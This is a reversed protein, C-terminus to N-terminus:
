KENKFKQNKLTPYVKPFYVKDYVSMTRNSWNVNKERGINEFYSEMINDYEDILNPLKEKNYVENHRFAEKSIRPKKDSRESPYGVCLGVLPYTYEPLNLLTIMEEPSKRIGGIPVTGLGLSEAATIVNQMALGADVSAVMISEVSDTIVLEKQVKEGAIKARYFDAVFVLFLPAAEIWPQNGSLESIKKRKEKDKVVIVSLQQGNISNPAAQAVEILTDIIEESVEKDLYSRISRHDKMVEVVKNM